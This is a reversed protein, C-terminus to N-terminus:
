AASRLLNTEPSTEIIGLLAASWIFWKKMDVRRNRFRNEIFEVNVGFQDATDFYAFKTKSRRAFSFQGNQIERYNQNKMRNRNKEVDGVFFGIHHLSLNEATRDGYLIHKDQGGVSFIEIQVRNAYGIVITFNQDLRANGSYIESDRIRPVFWNKIGFKRSCEVGALAIDDVLFGLQGIRGQGIIEPLGELMMGFEFSDLQQYM